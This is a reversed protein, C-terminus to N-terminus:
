DTPIATPSATPSPTTCAGRQFVRVYDIVMENNTWTWPDLRHEDFHGGVALNLLLHFRQNFPAGKESYPANESCTGGNASFWEDMSLVGIIQSDVRFTMADPEWSMSFNYFRDTYSTLGLPNQAGTGKHANGPYKRYHVTSHIQNPLRGKMEVIDIEGSAAWAGYISDSPLMWIAPWLGTGAPLKAGVDIRGYLWDGKGKTSIRASTYGGWAASTQVAKIHLHGQGDQYLNATSATYDQKEQNYSRTIQEINWKECDVSSGATQSFEDSWVLNLGASPPGTSLTYYPSSAQDVCTSESWTSMQGCTSAWYNNLSHQCTYVTGDDGRFTGGCAAPKTPSTGLSPTHCGGATVGSGLPLGM